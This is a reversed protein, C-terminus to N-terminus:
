SVAPSIEILQGQVGSLSSEAGNLTVSLVDTINPDSGFIIASLRPYSLGAGIALTAGYASLAAAANAVVVSRTVGAAVQLSAAVTATAITPRMVVPTVGEATVAQIAATVASIFSDPADGSGDDAYLTYFGVQPVNPVNQFRGNQQVSEAAELIASPVASRLGAIYLQFRARLAADSEADVGNTFALANTVTDVNAISTALLGIEGAQVNAGTGAVEAVVPVTISAIGAPILYGSQAASWYTNTSDAVVDFIQSGDLTKVQTPSTTSVPILASSTSTFRSFTVSGSAAVAPERYFFFDAYWSDLDSGSSSAARTQQLVLLILWQMWLAVATNAEILARLVSGVTFDLVTACAGQASAAQRQVWAAFNQLNLTM